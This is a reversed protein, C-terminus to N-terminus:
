LILVAPFHDEVTFQNLFQLLSTCFKFNNKVLGMTPVLSKVVYVVADVLVDNFSLVCLHFNLFLKIRYLIGKFVRQQAEFVKFYHRPVNFALNVLKRFNHIILRLKQSVCFDFHKILQPNEFKLNIFVNCDYSLFL